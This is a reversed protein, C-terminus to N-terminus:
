ARHAAYRVWEGGALKAWRAARSESIGLLDALIAPPLERALRLLAGARAGRANLGLARLRRRLHEDHMPADLRFGPFLWRPPEGAGTTALRPREDALRLVLGALPEPLELPDNGIRLTVRGGDHKVDDVTFLVQRSLPQGFLLLLTGAVRDRLDLREDTLLRRLLALREADGPPVAHVRARHWPVDLPPTLGARAAWRVFARVRRRASSGEALWRDLLEQRLEGLGLDQEELWLLLDAATRVRARALRHSRRTAQGRRARGLVDHQVQWRAFAHLHARGQTEPLRALEGAIWGELTALQDHREPLVGHRVLAARLYTTSQGRDVQDLAEHSLEREGRVLERLTAYGTERRIWDLVSRPKPGTKLAALYPELKGVAAPDGDGTLTELREVLV